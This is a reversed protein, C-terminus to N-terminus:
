LTFYKDRAAVKDFYEFLKKSNVRQLIERLAYIRSAVDGLSANVFANDKQQLIFGADFSGIEGVKAAQTDKSGPVRYPVLWREMGKKEADSATAWLPNEVIGGAEVLTLVPLVAEIENVQPEGEAGEPLPVTAKVTQKTPQVLVTFSVASKPAELRKIKEGLGALDNAAMFLESVGNVVPLSLSLVESNVMNVPYVESDPFYSGNQVYALCVDLFAALREKMQEPSKGDKRAQDLEKLMDETAAKFDDVAKRVTKAGDATKKTEFYAKLALAEDLRQNEIERMRFVKGFSLGAGFLVLLIVVFAAIQRTSLGTKHPKIEGREFAARAALIAAEQESPGEDKSQFPLSFDDSPGAPAAAAESAVEAIPKEEEKERRKLQLKKKLDQLDDSM